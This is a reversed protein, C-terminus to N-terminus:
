GLNITRILDCESRDIIKVSSMEETQKELLWNLADHEPIFTRSTGDITVYWKRKVVDFGSRKSRADDRELLVCLYHTIWIPRRRDGRIFSVPQPGHDVERSAIPEEMLVVPDKTKKRRKAHSTM